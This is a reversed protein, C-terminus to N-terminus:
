VDYTGITLHLPQRLELSVLLHVKLYLLLNCTASQDSSSEGEMSLEIEDVVHCKMMASTAGFKPLNV